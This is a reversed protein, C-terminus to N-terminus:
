GAPHERGDPETGPPHALLGRHLLETMLPRAAEAIAACDAEGAQGPLLLVAGGGLAVAGLPVAAAGTPHQSWPPPTSTSPGTSAPSDTGVHVSTPWAGGGAASAPSDGAAVSAPATDAAAASGSARFGRRPPRGGATGGPGAAAPSTSSVVTAPADDAWFRPRDPEAAPEGFDDAIRVQGPPIRAIDILARNPAGTLEAQIEALTLGAAQRRKLAVLQLLHRMGYQATRGQMTPRDILGTTAYWRIARRDPVDRVRGNPAGPYEAELAARVREVLEDITWM